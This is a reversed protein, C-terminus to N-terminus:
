LTPEDGRVEQYSPYTWGRWGHDFTVLASWQGFTNSWAWEHVACVQYGYHIPDWFRRVHTPCPPRQQPTITKMDSRVHHM